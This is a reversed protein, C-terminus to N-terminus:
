AIREISEKILDLQINRMVVPKAIGRLLVLRNQKGIFKKDHYYADIIRHISVGRLRLPLGYLKILNEIRLTLKKDIFGLRSSLDSAAIMGLGVAEGHNYSKYGCASEIAHGFTHGFNLITRLGSVEKEDRSAIAAKISSCAGIIKEM